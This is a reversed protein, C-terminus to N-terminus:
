KNLYRLLKVENFDYPKNIYDVAGALLGRVRHESATLGSIFIVPIDSTRPDQTLIRCADRGNCGPMASDMLILDPQRARAQEVGELGDSAYFLQCGQRHLYASLLMRDAEEDEVILIRRNTLAEM